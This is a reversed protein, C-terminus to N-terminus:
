ILSVLAIKKDGKIKIDGNSEIILANKANNEIFLCGNKQEIRFDIVEHNKNKANSREGM